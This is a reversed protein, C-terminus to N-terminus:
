LLLWSVPVWVPSSQDLVPVFSAVTVKVFSVALPQCLAIKEVGTDSVGPCGVGGGIM